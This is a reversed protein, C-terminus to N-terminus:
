KTTYIIWNTQKDTNIFSGGITKHGLSNKYWGESWSGMDLNVADSAGIEKLAKQFEMITMARSSECVLFSSDSFKVLSRRLNVNNGFLKCEIINKNKILLTQQFMSSKENLVKNTFADDITNTNEISISNNNKIVCVGNLLKNIEKNIIEGNQIFIGDITGTKSTYAGAVSLFTSEDNLPRKVAVKINLGFPYFLEIACTSAEQNLTIVGPNKSKMWKLDSEQSKIVSMLSDVMYDKRNDKQNKEITNCSSILLVLFLFAIRKM